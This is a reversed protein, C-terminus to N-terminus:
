INFSVKRRKLGTLQCEELERIRQQLALVEKNKEEQFFQLKRKFINQALNPGSQLPQNTQVSSQVRALKAGFEMQLRLLESNREREQEKLKSRLEELEEDKQQLMWKVEEANAAMNLAAQANAEEVERRSQQRVDELVRQHHETDANRESVLRQLEAEGEQAKKAHEMKLQELQSQLRENEVRTHFQAELSQHLEKVTGLLCGQEYHLARERSETHKFLRSVDELKLQLSRKDSQVQSISQRIVHAM